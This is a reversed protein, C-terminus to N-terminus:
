FVMVDARHEIPVMEEVSASIMEVDTAEPIECRLTRHLLDLALTPRSAPTFPMGMFIM